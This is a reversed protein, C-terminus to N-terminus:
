SIVQVQILARVHEVEISIGREAFRIHRQRVSVMELTSDM